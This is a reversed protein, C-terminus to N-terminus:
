RSKGKRASKRTTQKPEKQKSDKSGSVEAEAEELAALLEDRVKAAYEFETTQAKSGEKPFMHTLVIQGPGHYFFPIRWSGPKLEFLGNQSQVKRCKQENTPPGSDAVLQVLQLFQKKDAEDMREKVVAIVDAKTGIIYDIIFKKGHRLRVLEM